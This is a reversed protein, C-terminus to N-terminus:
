GHAHPCKERTQRADFLCHQEVLALATTRPGPAHEGLHVGSLLAEVVQESEVAVGGCTSNPVVALLRCLLRHGPAVVSGGKSDLFGGSSRTPPCDDLWENGNAADAPIGSCSPRSPSHMSLDHLSSARSRTSTSSVYIRWKLLRRSAKPLHQQTRSGQWTAGDTRWIPVAVHIAVMSASLGVGRGDSDAGAPGRPGGSAVPRLQRLGSVRRSREETLVSNTDPPM